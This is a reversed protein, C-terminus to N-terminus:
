VKKTGNGKSYIVVSGALKDHIARRRSDGGVTILSLWGLAAKIAFRLIALPLIVRKSENKGKRVRIGFIYHGITGSFASTMLPDYLIFILVFAIIRAEDPVEEFQGFITAAAISLGILVFGDTVAAKLREAVYPYPSESKSNNAKEIAISDIENEM